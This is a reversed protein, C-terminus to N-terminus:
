IYYGLYNTPPPKIVMYYSLSYESQFHILHM